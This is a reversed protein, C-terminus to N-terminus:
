DTRSTESAAYHLGVLMAESDRSLEQARKLLLWQETSPEPLSILPTRRARARIPETTTPASTQPLEIAMTSM